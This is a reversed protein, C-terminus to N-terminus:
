HNWTVFQAFRHSEVIARENEILRTMEEHTMAAREARRNAWHLLGTAVHAVLQDIVTQHGRSASIRATTMMM